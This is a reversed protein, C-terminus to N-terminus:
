IGANYEGKKIKWYLKIGYTDTKKHCIVCLTRGNDIDFRLDPYLSYPKIHDAQLNGGRINCLVCTYNDREFVKKRWLDCEHRPRKSKIQSRDKKYMPHNIGKHSKKANAELTMTLHQFNVIKKDESLNKVTYKGLCVRSCFKKRKIDRSTKHKVIVGCELCNKSGFDKCQKKAPM